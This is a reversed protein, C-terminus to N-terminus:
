GRRSYEIRWLTKWRDGGDTKEWHWTFGADAIDTWRLRRDATCLEMGGDTPGGEFVLWTGNSDAWAQRWVGDAPSRVSVSRGRLEASEFREVIVVGDCEATVVNTGSGGDWTCDWEGVWFDFDGM